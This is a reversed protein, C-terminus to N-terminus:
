APFLKTKVMSLHLSPRFLGNPVTLINKSGSNIWTPSQNLQSLIIMRYPFYERQCLSCSWRNTVSSNISQPPPHVPHRKPGGEGGKVVKLCPIAGSFTMNKVSKEGNTIKIERYDGNMTQFLSLLRSSRIAFKGPSMKYKTPCM